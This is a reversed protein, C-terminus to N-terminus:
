KKGKVEDATTFSTGNQSFLTFAKPSRSYMNIIKIDAGNAKALIVSTAGVAYLFQIDGSALAQTQEPGTTLESYTVPINYKSFTNSFIAKEKEVISPVNLPSKVYTIAIKKATFNTQSNNSNNSSKNNCSLTFLLLFVTIITKFFIQKKM